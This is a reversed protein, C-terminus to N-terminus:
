AVALAGGVPASRRRPKGPAGPGPRHRTYERVGGLDFYPVGDERIGIPGPAVRPNSPPLRHGDDDKLRTLWGYQGGSVGVIEGAAAVNGVEVEGRGDIAVTWTEPHFTRSRCGNRPETAPGGCRGCDPLEFKRAGECPEGKINNHPRPRNGGERTPGVQQECVPCEITEPATLTPM